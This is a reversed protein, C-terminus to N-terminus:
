KNKDRFDAPTMGYNEKFIKYFYGINNYGVMHAIDEIPLSTQRLNNVAEALRIEQM